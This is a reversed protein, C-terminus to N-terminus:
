VIWAGPAYELKKKWTWAGSSGTSLAAGNAAFTLCVADARDPSKGGRKKMEDKSDVKLKGTSLIKFRPTGLEAALEDDKPLSCSRAELWERVRFWLEDRLRLYREGVAPAESVNVGRVPLGLERLRDLVGSGLGISDVYIAAPRTKFTCVQYENYVRGATEMLDAGQWTRVELLKEGQRKALASRDDGYRAVDLGWIIPATPSPEIDRDMASAILHAPVVSDDDALPFEGEVRVRYVNSGAGYRAAMEALFGASVQTSDACGVRMTKWSASMRHFADYFYGSTRTPNGTMVTKAGATSMAGQGVEFVLDDVGSAEDIVFLMNTSHFGQLAEPQERRATRAVAFSDPVGVVEVKDSKVELLRRLVEPMRRHWKGIESWLVDSLQHATNATAAIKAPHRTMLFWLVLWALYTTKGVGHGSRIAVKDHDRVAELAEAQWAEPTAGLATKVFLVPDDAWAAILQKFEEASPTAQKAIKAPPM